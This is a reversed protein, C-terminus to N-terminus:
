KAPYYGDAKATAFSQPYKVVDASWAEFYRGGNQAGYQLIDFYPTGTEGLDVCPAGSCTAGIGAHKNTQWGIRTDYTTAFLNVESLVFNTDIDDSQLQVRGPALTTVQQVILSALHQNPDGPFDIGIQGSGPNFLSLGLFRNPFANAFATAIKGFGDLVATDSYGLSTWHDLSSDAAVADVALRGDPCTASQDNTGPAPHGTPLRLEEDYVSLGPVHVMTLDRYVGKQHLHQALAHAAQRWMKQVNKNWPLPIFASICRGSTGGVAWIDFLPACDAGCGAAFGVPLSELYTTSSQFGIEFEISFNKNNAVAIDILTDLYTWDWTFEGWTSVSPLIKALPVFIAHGDVDNLYAPASTLGAAYATEVSRENANENLVYVGRPAHRRAQRLQVTPTEGQALVLPCFVLSLASLATVLWKHTM